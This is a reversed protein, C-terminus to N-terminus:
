REEELMRRGYVLGGTLKERGTEQSLQAYMPWVPAHQRRVHSVQIAFVTLNTIVDDM